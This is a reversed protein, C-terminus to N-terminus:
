RLYPINKKGAKRQAFRQLTISVSTFKLRPQNYVSVKQLSYFISIFQYEKKKPITNECPKLSLQYQHIIKKNVEFFTMELHRFLLYFFFFDKSM